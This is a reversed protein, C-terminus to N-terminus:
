PDSDNILTGTISTRRLGGMNRCTVASNRQVAFASCKILIGLM